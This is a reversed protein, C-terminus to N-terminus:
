GPLLSPTARVRDKLEAYQTRFALEHPRYLDITSMNAYGPNKFKVPYARFAGVLLLLGRSRAKTTEASATVQAEDRQVERAQAGQSRVEHNRDERAHDEQEQR